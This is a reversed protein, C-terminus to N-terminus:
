AGVAACRAGRVVRSTPTASKRRSSPAQRSFLRRESLRRPRQVQRRRHRAPDSAARTARQRRRSPRLTTSACSRIAAAANSSSSTSACGVRTPPSPTRTAFSIGQSVGEFVHLETEVGAARIKRHVRVTNSLFLDRTGSTLIAPPSGHYDGYVPSMMPDKLDHGNAYLRAADGVLGDYSGLVMALILAGGASSGFILTNRPDITTTLEKWVAM